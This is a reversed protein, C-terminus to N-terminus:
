AGGNGSPKNEYEILLDNAYAITDCRYYKDCYKECDDMSHYPCSSIKSIDVDISNDEDIIAEREANIM